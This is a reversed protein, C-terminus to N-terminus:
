VAPYIPNSKLTRALASLNRATIEALGENDKRYLETLEELGKNEFNVFSLVSLSPAPPISLGVWAMFMCLHGICYEAGDEGGTIVVGGVKNHLPSTGTKRFEGGRITDMREIARQILSSYSGWWIPTALIIIDAAILKRFIKPWEDGEEMDNQTGPPINYAALRIIESQVGHSTLKETLLNSLAETHSIEDANKLTGLLFVAQLPSESM